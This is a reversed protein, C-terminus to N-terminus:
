PFNRPAPSQLNVQFPWAHYIYIHLRLTPSHWDVIWQNIRWFKALHLCQDLPDDRSACHAFHSAPSQSHNGSRQSRKLTGCAPYGGSATKQPTPQGLVLSYPLSKYRSMYFPICFLQSLHSLPCNIAYVTRRFLSLQNGHQDHQLFCLDM